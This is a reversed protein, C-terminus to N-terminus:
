KFSIELSLILFHSTELIKHNLVLINCISQSFTVAWKFAIYHLLNFILKLKNSAKFLWLLCDKLCKWTNNLCNNILFLNKDLGM